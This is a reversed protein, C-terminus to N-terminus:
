APGFFSKARLTARGMLIVVSGDSLVVLCTPLGPGELRMKLVRHGSPQLGLFNRGPQARFEGLRPPKKLDFAILMIEQARGDHHGVVVQLHHLLLPGTGKRSTSSTYRRPDALKLHVGKVGPDGLGENNGTRMIIPLDVQLYHAM